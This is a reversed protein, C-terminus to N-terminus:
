LYSPYAIYAYNESPSPSNSSSSLSNSSLSPSYSSLSPSYSSLSPSYSSLSPSYSSLSPSYSSLSPSNSSPSPSHSSPSLSNSSPSPSNSSPSPNNSPPPCDIALHHFEIGKLFALYLSLGRFNAGITTSLGCSAKPPSSKSRFAPLYIFFSHSSASWFMKKTKIIHHLVSFSNSIKDNQKM